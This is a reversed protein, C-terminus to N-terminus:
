DKRQGRFYAVVTAVCGLVLTMYATFLIPTSYTVPSKKVVMDPAPIYGQKFTIDPKVRQWTLCLFNGQSGDSSNLRSSTKDTVSGDLSPGSPADPFPGETRRAARRYQKKKERQIIHESSSRQSLREHVRRQLTKSRETAKIHETRQSKLRKTPDIIDVHSETKARKAEVVERKAKSMFDEASISNQSLSSQRESQSRQNQTVEKKADAMMKTTQESATQLKTKSAEMRKLYDAYAVDGGEIGCDLIDTETLVSKTRLPGLIQTARKSRLFNLLETMESIQDSSLSFFKFKPKGTNCVLCQKNYLPRIKHTQTDPVFPALFRDFYAPDDAPSQFRICSYHTAKNPVANPAVNLGVRPGRFEVKFKVGSRVVPKLFTSWSFCKKGHKALLIWNFNPTVTDQATAPLLRELFGNLGTRNKM